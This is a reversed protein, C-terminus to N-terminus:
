KNKGKRLRFWLFGILAGATLIYPWLRVTNRQALSATDTSQLANSEQPAKNTAEQTQGAGQLTKNADAGIATNATDQAGPATGSLGSTDSAVAQPDIASAYSQEQSDPAAVKPSVTSVDTRKQSSQEGQGSVGDASSIGAGAAQAAFPANEAQAHQPASGMKIGEGSVPKSNAGAQPIDARNQTSQATSLQQRGNPPWSVGFSLGALVVILLLPVVAKWQWRWWCSRSWQVIGKARRALPNGFREEAYEKGTEVPIQALKALTLERIREKAEVNIEQGIYTRLLNLEEQGLEKRDKSM